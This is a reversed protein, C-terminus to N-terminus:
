DYDIDQRNEDSEYQIDAGVSALAEEIKEYGREIYHDDRVITEGEAALGAIILAAGGRLEEAAVLTGHLKNVGKIIFDRSSNAIIDAGMYKLQAIHKDRSNFITEKIVSTGDALALAATFQAQMDTPFGPHPETILQALPKLRRPSKIRVKTDETKIQCGMESLRATIPSIDRPAADTLTLDSGTIAAATLYTGAVIRDPIVTHEVNHLKSGGNIVVTHTGAGHIDAGMRNLYDQLDVIEPERAANEILTQGDIRVAALMINETVGVSVQRMHHWLGKLESAQALLKGDIEEITAGMQELAHRHMDISRTGLKCGGPPLTFIRGFRGLMAGMLFVSSRMKVALGDPIDTLHAGSSNIILTNGEFRATCGISRLIEVFYFVDSILPCNHIISEGENLISAAFIPLAANKSGTVPLSGGLRKGGTIRYLCM